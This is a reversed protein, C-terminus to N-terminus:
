RLWMSLDGHSKILLQVVADKDQASILTERMGPIRLLLVTGAM